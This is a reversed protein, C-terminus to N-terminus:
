KRKIFRVDHVQAKLKRGRVDIFIETDIQASDIDIYAQGIACKFSPSHGGSTLVGIKEGDANFIISGERAIGKDVLKVGVRKRKVTQTLADAGVFNVHEKSVVWNLDAEKPTTTEDLEHGYLAFGAELRLSDRAALGIPEVMPHENLQLWLNEAHDNDISIEFGDEGTYGSRSVLCAFGAVNMERISMYPMKSLDETVFRQLVQAAKPGQLAMLARRRLEDFELGKGLKSLMYQKDSMKCAANLVIYIKNETLRSAILDDRVGGKENMLLTYVNKGLLKENFNTPTLGSLFDAGDMGLLMFQGMHSVDFLGANERCWLHEKLTGLPYSIPMDYGAFPAMKAGSSTHFTHLPTKSIIKEM